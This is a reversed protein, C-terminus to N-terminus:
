GTDGDVRVGIIRLFLHTLGRLLKQRSTLRGMHDLARNYNLLADLWVGRRLQLRALLRLTAAERERDDQTSFLDAAEQLLSEAQDTAGRLRMLTALNGMVVAKGQEDDIAEYLALAEEYAQHADALNGMKQQAVGLDSLARAEGRKDGAQQWLLRMEEFAEVATDYEGRDYAARGHEVHNEDM